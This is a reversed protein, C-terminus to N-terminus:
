ESGVAGHPVLFGGNSCVLMDPGPERHAEEQTPLPQPHYLTALARAHAIEALCTSSAVSEPGIIFVFNDAAEIGAYIEKLWEATLSLGESRSIPPQWGVRNRFASDMVELSAALKTPLLARPFPM